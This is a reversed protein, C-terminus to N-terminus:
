AVRVLIRSARRDEGGPELMGVAQKGGYLRLTEVALPLANQSVVSVHRGSMMVWVADGKNLLTVQYFLDPDLAEHTVKSCWLYDVHEDERLITGAEIGLPAGAESIPVGQPPHWPKPETAAKLKGWIGM